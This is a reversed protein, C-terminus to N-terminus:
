KAEKAGYADYFEKTFKKWDSDKWEGFTRNFTRELLDKEHKTFIRRREALYKKQSEEDLADERAEKLDEEREAEIEGIIDIMNKLYTELIKKNKGSRRMDPSALFTILMDSQASRNFFSQATASDFNFYEKSTMLFLKRPEDANGERVAMRFRDVDWYDFRWDAKRSDMRVKTIMGQLGSNIWSPLASELAVNQEAMWYRYIQSNLQDVARGTWGGDDWWTILEQDISTYGGGAGSDIGAAYALTEDFNKCVRVIPARLYGGDGLYGYNKDLWNLLNNTHKQVRDSWKKDASSLLLIRKKRAHTWGRDPLRSIAREHMTKESDKAKSKREEPTGERLDFRTVSFGDMTSGSHTIPRDPEFLAFTQRVTKTKKAITKWHKTLGVIQVAYDVKETHYIWTEITQPGYRALKEVKYKRKTVRVGDIEDEKEEDLYFGGGKFTRTLFDDYDKYPNNFTITVTKEGDKEDEEVETGDSKMIDLPFVIVKLEPKHNSTYGLDPDTYSYESQSIYNAGLWEENTKTAIMNWKKPYKFEFGFRTSRDMGKPVKQGTKREPSQAAAAATSLAAPSLAAPSLAAPSLAAPGAIPGAAAHTPGPIVSVALFATAAPALWYFPRTM